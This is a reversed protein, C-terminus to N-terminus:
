ILFTSYHLLSIFPFVLCSPDFTHPSEVQWQQSQLHLFSTMHWLTCMTELLWPHGETSLWCSLLSRWEALFQIMSLILFLLFVSGGQLRWFPICGQWSRLKPKPSPHRVESRCFHLMMLKPQKLGQTQPLTNHCWYFVFSVNLGQYQFGLYTKFDVYRRYNYCYGFIIRLMSVAESFKVQSSLMCVFFSGRPNKNEM